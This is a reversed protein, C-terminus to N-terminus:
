FRSAFGPFRLSRRAGGAVASALLDPDSFVITFKDGGPLTYEGNLGTLQAGRWGKERARQFAWELGASATYFAKSSQVLGASQVKGSGALMSLTVGMAGIALIAFLVAILAIGKERTKGRM